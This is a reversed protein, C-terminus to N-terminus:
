LSLDIHHGKYPHDPGHPKRADPGEASKSREEAKGNGQQSGRRDRNHDRIQSKDTEELKVTRQRNSESAKLGAQSLAAQDSQPKQQLERQIMAADQNKHVAMSMDIAKFSM